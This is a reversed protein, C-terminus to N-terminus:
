GTGVNHSENFAVWPSTGGGFKSTDISKGTIVAEQGSSVRTAKGGPSSAPLMMVTGDLVDLSASNKSSDDLVFIGGGETSSISTPGEVRFSAPIESIVGVSVYTRGTQQGSFTRTSNQYGVKLLEFSSDHDLRTISGDFFAIEARGDAGTRVADGGHLETDAVGARFGGNSGIRMEVDGGLLHLVGFQPQLGNTPVAPASTKSGSCSVTLVVAILVSSWARSM